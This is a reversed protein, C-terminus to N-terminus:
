ASPTILREYRADAVVVDGDQEGRGLGDCAAGDALGFYGVEDVVEQALAASGVAFRVVDEEQGFGTIWLGDAEM